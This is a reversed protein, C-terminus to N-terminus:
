AAMLESAGGPPFIAIRRGVPSPQWPQEETNQPMDTLSAASVTTTTEVALLCGEMLTSSSLSPLALAPAAAAAGTVAAEPGPAAVLSEAAGGALRARKVKEKRLEEAAAEEFVPSLAVRGGVMEEGMGAEGEAAAAAVAM